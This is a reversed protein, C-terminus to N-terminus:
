MNMPKKAIGLELEVIAGEPLEVVGLFQNGDGAYKSRRACAPTLRGCLVWLCGASVRACLLPDGAYYRCSPLCEVTPRGCIARPFHKGKRQGTGYSGYVVHVMINMSALENSMM